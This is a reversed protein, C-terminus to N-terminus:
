KADEAPESYFLTTEEETLKTDLPKCSVEARFRHTGPTEARAKIKYVAERGAELMPITRILVMGPKLEHAGGEVSVPEIGNSFYAIAEVSEASKSGRNRIHVEYVMETGVPVPGSPDIVELSLDAVAEVHTAASADQELDRDAVCAVELKNAGASRLLCKATLTIEAGQDLSPISWHVAGSEDQKGSSSCSIFEAKAPLRCNVRLNQAAANGTNKVHVEYVAPTNAYQMKPAHATVALAARRVLVEEALTAKIDGVAVAEAHIAVKGAQRAILEVEITKSEGPRLLGISHSAPAGDGPNLPMLTIVVNEADGTGPNTLLLKYITREGFTVEKAGDLVLELKPEQVEVTTQSSPAQTWRVALEFPQSKHPVIELSLEERGQAALSGLKWCLGEQGQAPETAGSTPKVDVVEASGPVSVTVVVDKASMEGSNKLVLKYTAQKGVSIKRPGVTEVSISPSSRRVILTDSSSKDPESRPPDDGRGPGVSRAVRPAGDPPAGGAASRNPQAQPPAATPDDISRRSSPQRAATTQPRQRGNYQGNPSAQRPAGNDDYAADYSAAPPQQMQNQGRQQRQMSQRNNTRNAGVLSRGFQELRQPFSSQDQGTDDQARVFAPLLVSAALLIALSRSRPLM